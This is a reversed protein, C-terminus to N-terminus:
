SGVGGCDLWCVGGGALFALQAFTALLLSSSSAFSTTSAEGTSTFAPSSVESSFSTLGALTSSAVVTLTSSTVVTLTSSGLGVALWISAFCSSSVWTLDLRSSGAGSGLLGSVTAILLSSALSINVSSSLDSVLRFLTTSSTFVQSLTVFSTSFSFSSFSSVTIFFGSDISGASSTVMASELPLKGVSAFSFMVSGCVLSFTFQTSVSSFNTSSFAPSLSSILWFLTARISMAASLPSPFGRVLPTSLSSGLPKGYVASCHAGFLGSPLFCYSRSKRRCSCLFGRDIFFGSAIGVLMSIM